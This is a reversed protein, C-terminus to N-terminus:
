SPSTSACYPCLCAVPVCIHYPCSHEDPVCVHLLSVPTCCPCCVHLPAVLMHHACLCPTPIRVHLLVHIHSPVHDHLSMPACCLCLHTISIPVYHSCAPSRSPHTIPVQPYILSMPVRLPRPPSVPTHHSQLRAASGHVHSPFVSMVPVCLAHVLVHHLRPCPLPVCTHHPCLWTMPCSRTMPVGSHWM